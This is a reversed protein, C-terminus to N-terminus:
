CIVTRCGPWLTTLDKFGTPVGRLSGATKHLEDLRDFSEALIDKVPVFVQKLHQQALAFVKSEAVDLMERM